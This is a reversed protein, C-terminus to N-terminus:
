GSWHGNEARGRCGKIWILAIMRNRFSWRADFGCACVPLRCDATRPFISPALSADPVLGHIFQGRTMVRRHLQDIGGDHAHVLM